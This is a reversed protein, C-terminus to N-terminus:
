HQAEAEIKFRYKKGKRAAWANFVEMDIWLHRGPGGGVGAGQRRHLWPHYGYHKGVYLSRRGTAFRSDLETTSIWRKAESTSM